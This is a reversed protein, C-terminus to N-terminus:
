RRRRREVRPLMEDQAPLDVEVLEGVLELFVAHAADDLRQQAAGVSALERGAVELVDAVETQDGAVVRRADGIGDVRLHHRALEGVGDLGPEIWSTAQYTSAPPLRSTSM